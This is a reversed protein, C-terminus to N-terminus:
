KNIIRKFTATLSYKNDLSKSAYLMEPRARPHRPSEDQQVKPRTHARLHQAGAGGGTSGRGGGARTSLHDLLPVTAVSGGIYASPPRKVNNTM